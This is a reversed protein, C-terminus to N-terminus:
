RGSASWLPHTPGPAAMNVLVLLALCPSRPETTSLGPGDCAVHRAPASTSVM